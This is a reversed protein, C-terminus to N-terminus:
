KRLEDLRDEFRDFRAMIENRISAMEAKHVYDVKIQNVEGTLKEHQGRLVRIENELQSILWHALFGVLPLVIALAYSIVVYLEM